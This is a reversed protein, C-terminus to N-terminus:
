SNDVIRSKPIKGKTDLDIIVQELIAESLARDISIRSDEKVWKEARAIIYGKNM